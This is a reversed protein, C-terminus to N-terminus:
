TQKPRIRGSLLEELIDEVGLTEGWSRLYTADLAPGQVAVIGAADGVQRDSPTLRNWLLKHLLVDEATAIWAMEGLLRVHLRRALMANEFRDDWLLWFDVKLASRTDIANCLHPPDFAQRVAVEDLHFDGAFEAVLPSISDPALHVAFDLDHTSRPIGWYNSAMSGTLFYDVRARDLRRICDVVLEQETM